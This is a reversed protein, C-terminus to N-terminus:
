SVFNTVPCQALSLKDGKAIPVNGNNCYAMNFRKLVKYIYNNQSLGITGKSRNRVIEIGLVFHLEGLDKMDFNNSLMSKFM